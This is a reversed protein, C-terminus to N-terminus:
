CQEYCLIKMFCCYYNFVGNEGECVNGNRIKIGDRKLVQKRYTYSNGKKPDAFQEMHEVLIRYLFPSCPDNHLIM